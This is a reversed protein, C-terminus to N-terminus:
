VPGATPCSGGVARALKPPGFLKTVALGLAIVKLTFVSVGEEVLWFM